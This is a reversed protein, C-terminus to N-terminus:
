SIFEFKYGQTSDLKGKCVKVCDPFEQRCEHISDWERVLNHDMDYQALRRPPYQRRGFPQWTESKMLSWRYGRCARNHRIARTIKGQSTMRPTDAIAQMINAYGKDFEGTLKYRYIPTEKSYKEEGTFHYGHCFGGKFMANAIADRPIDLKVAADAPTDFVNLLVDDRNYQYVLDATYTKYLGTNIEKESSWFSGKYNTRAAASLCMKEDPNNYVGLLNGDYDFRYLRKCRMPGAVTNYTDERRAFGDTALLSLMDLAEERSEYIALTVRMFASTGYKLVAGHLPMKCKNYSGPVNTWAGDGIYGDFALPDETEHVGIYSKGNEKNVTLFVIYKMKM